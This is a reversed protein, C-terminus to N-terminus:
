PENRATYGQWGPHRIPHLQFGSERQAETILERIEPQPIHDSSWYQKGKADIGWVFMKGARSETFTYSVCKDIWGKYWAEKIERNTWPLPPALVSPAYTMAAAMAVSQFMARFFQRRTSM